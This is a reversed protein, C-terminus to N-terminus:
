EEPMGQYYTKFDELQKTQYLISEAAESIKKAVFEKPPVVDLEIELSYSDAWIAWGEYFDLIVDRAYEKDGSYEGVFYRWQGRGIGSKDCIWYRNFKPTSM